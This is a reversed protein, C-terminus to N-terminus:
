RSQSGVHHQNLHLESTAMEYAHEIDNVIFRGSGVSTFYARLAKPM